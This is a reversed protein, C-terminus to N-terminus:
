NEEVRLEERDRLNLLIALAAQIPVGSRDAAYEVSWCEEWERKVSEVWGPEDQEISPRLARVADLDVEPLSGAAYLLKDDWKFALPREEYGRAELERARRAERSLDERVALVSPDLDRAVYGELRNNRFGWELVRM